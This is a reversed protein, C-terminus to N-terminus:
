QVEQREQEGQKEQKEQKEERAVLDGKKRQWKQHCFHRLLWAGCRQRLRSDRGIFRDSERRRHSTRTKPAGVACTDFFIGTFLPPCSHCSHRSFCSHCSNRNKRDERNKKDKREPAGRGCDTSPLGHRRRVLFCVGCNARCLYLLAYLRAYKLRM